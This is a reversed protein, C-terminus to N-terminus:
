FCLLFYEDEDDDLLLLLSSSLLRLFLRLCSLSSLDDPFSDSGTWISVFELIFTSLPIINLRILKESPSILKESLSELISVSFAPKYVAKSSFYNLLFCFSIIASLIYCSNILWPPTYCYVIYLFLSPLFISSFSRFM